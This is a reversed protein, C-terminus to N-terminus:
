AGRVVESLEILPHRTYAVVLYTIDQWEPNPAALVGDRGRSSQLSQVPRGVSLGPERRESAYATHKLLM